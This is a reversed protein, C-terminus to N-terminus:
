SCLLLIGRSAVRQRRTFNGCSSPIFNTGILRVVVVSEKKDGAAKDLSTHAQRALSIALLPYFKDRVAANNLMTGESPRGQEAGQEARTLCRFLRLGLASWGPWQAGRGSSIYSGKDSDKFSACVCFSHIDSTCHLTCIGLWPPAWLGLWPSAGRWSLQIFGLVHGGSLLVLRCVPAVRMWFVSSSWHIRSWPPLEPLTTAMISSPTATQDAGPELSVWGESSFMRLVCTQPRRDALDLRTKMNEEKLMYMTCHACTYMLDSRTFTKGGRLM